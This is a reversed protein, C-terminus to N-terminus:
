LKKKLDPTNSKSSNFGFPSDQSHQHINSPCKGSINQELLLCHFSEKWDLCTMLTFYSVFHRDEFILTCEQLELFFFFFFILPFHFSWSETAQAQHQFMIRLRASSRFYHCYDLAMLYHICFTNLFLNCRLGLPSGEATFNKWSQSPLLACVMGLGSCGQDWCGTSLAAWVPSGWPCRSTSGLLCRSIAPNRVPASARLWKWQVWHM